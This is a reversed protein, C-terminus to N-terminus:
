GKQGVDVKLVFVQGQPQIRELPHVSGGLESMVVVKGHEVDRPVLDPPVFLDHKGNEAEGCIELQYSALLSCLGQRVAPVDDVVLIRAPM